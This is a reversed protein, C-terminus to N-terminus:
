KRKLEVVTEIHSTQPFMDFPQVTKIAYNQSLEKLDRALTAPNCSIYIIQEVIENNVAELVKKDCGSRPPDLILTTKIDKTSNLLNKFYSIKQGDKNLLKSLSKEIDEVKIEQNANETQANKNLIVNSSKQTLNKIKSTKNFLTTTFETQTASNLKYKELLNLLEPITKACDGNINIINKINNLKVLEDANQSAYKNIEVGVVFNAKQSLIASLLGTGSYADILINNKSIKGLVNTYISDSVDDNIQVFSAPSINFHIEHSANKISHIGFIHKFQNGLIDKNETNINISLGFSKFQNSLEKTLCELMPLKYTTAVLTILIENDIERAVVYKLMGTKKIDDYAYVKSVEIYHRVIELLKKAFPKQLLCEPIEIINHSNNEFMGVKTANNIRRVAFVIKNRYGFETSPLCKKVVCDLDAIKKITQKVKNQKFNLQTSYKMHQLQCGGCVKFYPCPPQVRDKSKKKIELLKANAFSSKDTTIKAEIKEGILAQPVFITKGMSHAIGEGNMGLDDIVLKLVENM